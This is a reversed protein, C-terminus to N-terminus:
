IHFGLAGFFEIKVSSPMSRRLQVPCLYRSERNTVARQMKLAKLNKSNLPSIARKGSEKEYQARDIAIEPDASEDIREKGVQALWMKYPEAKPSPISQIIRLLQETNAVDTSRMRGDAAQM